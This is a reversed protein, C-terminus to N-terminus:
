GGGFKEGDLCKRRRGEKYCAPILCGRWGEWGGEKGVEVEGVGRRGVEGKGGEGGCGTWQWACRSLGRILAKCSTYNYM